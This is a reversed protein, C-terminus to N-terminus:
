VLSRNVFMIICIRCPRPIALLFPALPFVAFLSLFSMLICNVHMGIAIFFIFYEGTSFAEIKSSIKLLSNLKVATSKNLHGWFKIKATNEIKNFKHITDGVDNFSIMM